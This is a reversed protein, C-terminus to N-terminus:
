QEGLFYTNYINLYTGDDEMDLLAQNMKKIIEGQNKNGMFGYGLGVPIPNGITKYVDHSSVVWYNANPGDLLMVDIEKNTLATLLQSINTYTKITVTNGFEVPVMKQFVTGEGVGVTKGRIDDITRISSGYQTLYRATSKMYPLTFLYEAEREPTIIIGGAGFDVSKALVADCVDKFAGMQIYECKADIRRCIENLLDADFGSFKGNGDAIIFPPNFPPTAIKINLTQAYSSSLTLLAALFIAIRM